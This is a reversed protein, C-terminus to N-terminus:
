AANGEEEAAGIAAIEKTLENARVSRWRDVIATVGVALTKHPVGLLETKSRELYALALAEAVDHAPAAKRARALRLAVAPEIAERLAEVKRGYYDEAWAQFAVPGGRAARQADQCENKVFRSAVSQILAREAIEVAALHEVSPAPPAQIQVNIVPAPPPASAVNVVPAPTEPIHIQPEVKIRELLARLEGTGVRGGAPEDAPAAPEDEDETEKPPAPQLSSGPRAGPEIPPLGLAKLVSTPDFGADILQKVADIKEKMSLEDVHPSPPPLNQQAAVQAPTMAGIEVYTKQIEARNKADARLTSDFMHEVYYTSRQAKSILKLNCEQEIRRAWPLLTGRDHETEAEELNGGPREGVKHKLKHPLLNLMRAIEEIQFSRTELFQADDPPITLPKSAKMGEELIMLRHAKEPGRHMNEISQRLRDQADKSLTKPHELAVGAWTGNGYFAAGYTEAAIALGLTRKFMQVPSYGKIGDFGLGHVHLVEWAELRDSGKYLYYLESRKRGSEFVSSCMPQIDTPPIHWLAIPRGARDFEIEAYGNGWGVAHGVITEWFVQPVEYENPQDHVLKYVYHSPAKERTMEDVRHYVHREIAAVDQAIVRVGELYAPVSNATTQDVRVGAVTPMELLGKSLFDEYTLSRWAAKLRDVIKM